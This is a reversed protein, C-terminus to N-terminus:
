LATTLIASILLFQPSRSSHWANTIVGTSQKANTKVCQDAPRSILVVEEQTCVETGAGLEICAM